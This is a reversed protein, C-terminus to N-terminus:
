ENFKSVWLKHERSISKETNFILAKYNAETLDILLMRKFDKIEEIAVGYTSSLEEYRKTQKWSFLAASLTTFFGLYTLNPFQESSVTLILITLLAGVGMSILGLWFFREGRKKNYKTKNYYYKEQNDIRYNIYFEVKDKLPLHFAEQMWEPNDNDASEAQVHQLFDQVNIEKKISLITKHFSKLTTSWDADETDIKFITIWTTSLISEALFRSKQWGDMFNIRHQVVMLILVTLVLALELFLKIREWRLPINWQTLDPFTSLFAIILLLVLQRKHHGLYKKQCFLSLRNFYEYSDPGKLDREYTRPQNKM